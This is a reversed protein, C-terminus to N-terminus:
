DNQHDGQRSSYVRHMAAIVADIEVIESTVDAKLTDQDLQDSGTAVLLALKTEMAHLTSVAHELRLLGRELLNELEEIARLQMRRAAITKRLQDSTSRNSSIVIRSELESIRDVLHIKEGVKRKQEFQVPEIVQVLRGIGSFWENIALLSGDIEVLFSTRNTRLREMRARCSVLQDVLRKIEQDRISGFCLIEQLVQRTALEIVEPDNMAMIALAVAILLTGILSAASSWWPLMLDSGYLLMFATILIGIVLISLVELSSFGQRLRLRLLVSRSDTSSAPLGGLEHASVLFPWLELTM